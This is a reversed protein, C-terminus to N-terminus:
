ADVGEKLVLPYRNYALDWPYALPMGSCVPHPKWPGGPSDSSYVTPNNPHTFGQSHLSTSFFWPLILLRSPSSSALTPVSKLCLLHHHDVCFSCCFFSEPQSPHLLIALLFFALPVLASHSFCPAPGSCLSQLLSHPLWMSFTLNSGGRDMGEVELLTALLSSPQGKTITVIGLLCILLIHCSM